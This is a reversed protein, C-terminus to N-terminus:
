ARIDTRPRVFDATAPREQSMAQLLDALKVALEVGERIQRARIPDASMSRLKNLEGLLLELYKSVLRQRSALDQRADALDADTVLAPQSM